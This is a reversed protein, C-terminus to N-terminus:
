GIILGFKYADKYDLHCLNRTGYLFGDWCIWELPALGPRTDSFRLLSEKKYDLMVPSEPDFLKRGIQFSGGKLVTGNPNGALIRPDFKGKKDLPLLLPRYGYDKYPNTGFSYGGSVTVSHNEFGLQEQTFYFLASSQEFNYCARWENERDRLPSIVVHTSQFACMDIEEPLMHRYTNIDQWIQYIPMVAAYLDGDIKFTNRETPTCYSQFQPLASLRWVSGDWDFGTFGPESITGM